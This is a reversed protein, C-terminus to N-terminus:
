PMHQFYRMGMENTFRATIPRHIDSLAAGLYRLMSPLYFVVMAFFSVIAPLQRMHRTSNSPCGLSSIAQLVGTTSLMTTHVLEGLTTSPRRPTSSNKSM